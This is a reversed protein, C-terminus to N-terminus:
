RLLRGIILVSSVEDGWLLEDGHRDKLRDWIHLREAYKTGVPEGVRFFDLPFGNRLTSRSSNSRCEIRAYATRAEKERLRKMKKRSQNWVLGSRVEVVRGDCILRDNLM